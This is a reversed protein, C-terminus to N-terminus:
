LVTGSFDYFLRVDVGLNRAFREVGKSIGSGPKLLFVFPVKHQGALTLMARIQDDLAVNRSADWKYKSDAIILPKEGHRASRYLDTIPEREGVPMFDPIIEVVKPQQTRADLITVRYSVNNKRTKIIVNEWRMEFTQGANIALQAKIPMGKNVLRVDREIQGSRKGFVFRIFDDETQLLPNERARYRQWSVRLRALEESSLGSLDVQRLLEQLLKTEQRPTFKPPPLSSPSLPEPPPLDKVLETIWEDIQEELSTAAGPTLKWEVEYDAQPPTGEYRKAKNHVLLGAESVFYTNLGDVEINFVEFSGTREGVSELSRIAGDYALLPVGPVLAGARQWGQGVVWFPHETSCSILTEGIRLDLLHSVTRKFVHKIRHARRIGSSDGSLVEDGVQLTEIARRGAPTLVKTGAVFCGIGKIEDADKLLRETEEKIRRLGVRRNLTLGEEADGATKFFSRAADRLGIFLRPMTMAVRAFGYLATASSLKEVFEVFEKGGKFSEIIWGRHEILVSTIVGLVTAARDALMLVRAALSAELGAEAVAGAGLALSLGAVEGLKEWTHTLADNSAQVLLIAPGYEVVGGKDYFRIGVIEDEPLEIGASFLEPPLTRVEGAYAPDVRTLTHMKVHIKGGPLRKAYIHASGAGLGLVGVTMGTKRYPFIKLDPNLLGKQFTEDPMVALRAQLIRRAQFLEDADASGSTLEDFLRDLLERGASSRAIERLAEDTLTSVLILSVDDRSTSGLETLSQQIKEYEGRRALAYLNDALQADVQWSARVGHGPHYHRYRTSRKLMLAFHGESPGGNMMFAWLADLTNQPRGKLATLLGSQQYERDQLIRLLLDIHRASLMGPLNSERDRAEWKSLYSWVLAKNPFTTELEQALMAADRNMEEIAQESLGEAFAPLQGPGFIDLPWDIAPAAEEPMRGAHRVGSPPAPSNGRARPAYGAKIIAGTQTGINAAPVPSAGGADGSTFSTPSDGRGHAAFTEAYTQSNFVTLEVEASAEPANDLARRLATLVANQLRTKAEDALEGRWTVSEPM